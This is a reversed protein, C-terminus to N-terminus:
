LKNLLSEPLVSLVEWSGLNNNSPRLQWYCEENEPLHDCPPVLDFFENTSSDEVVMGNRRGRVNQVFM